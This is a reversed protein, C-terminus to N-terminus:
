NALLAGLAVGPWLARGWLVLAALAIGTPPWIATVSRTEFALELGLRGSAWYAGALLAIRIAYGTAGARPWTVAPRDELALGQHWSLRAVQSYIYVRLGDNARGIM